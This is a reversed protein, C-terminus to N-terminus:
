QEKRQHETEVDHCAVCLVQLYKPDCLLEEFILGIIKDWNGIGQLHHVQVKVEHGQKKSAKAGCKACCNKAAKLAAARERSRLFLQRLAARV